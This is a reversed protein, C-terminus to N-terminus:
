KGSAMSNTFPMGPRSNGFSQHRERLLGLVFTQQIFKNFSTLSPDEERGAMRSSWTLVVCHQTCIGLELLFDGQERGGGSSETM